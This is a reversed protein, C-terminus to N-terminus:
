HGGVAATTAQRNQPLVLLAAVLLVLMMVSLMMFADAYGLISAQTQLTHNISGLTGHVNGIHAAIAQRYSEYNLSGPVLHEALRQQQVQARQAQYTAVLAIGISGGINRFLSFLASAKNSKGKPINSFALTSVPIFLFPLGIVQAVRMWLFTNFDTQPTLHATLFMGASMLTLGCFIIARAQVRGILKGSLPMLFMVAFGAPSLIMGALTANYGYQAQLMLPLLASGGYLTFGTFFILVCGAAFARDKFLSLDIIPEKQNWLWIVAVVLCVASILSWILIFPSSFWDEQQGKDLVIQLAAIGLAVLSAGWYDIKSHVHPPDNEVLRWVLFAALIGVPVNIYFIWRWSAHDTILGGLTPGIIPAFIMTIGTIAFVAGRKQPPFADLIIAQQTPQLGGGAAGQLIRFFVLGALSTTAGCLFSAATFGAICFLFFRKRGMVDSLWGSLPLVVANAVLYSTLVWTSEDQGAGLSGAIHRLSVNTITTDLVEMFTAMSVVLAILWPNTQAQKM